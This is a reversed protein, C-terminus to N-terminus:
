PKREKFVVSIIRCGPPLDIRLDIRAYEEPKELCPEGIEQAEELTQIRRIAWDAVNAYERSASGGKLVRWLEQLDGMGYSDPKETM